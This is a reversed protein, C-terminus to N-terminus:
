NWQRGESKPGPWEGCRSTVKSRASGVSTICRRASFDYVTDSLIVPLAVSSRVSLPRPYPRDGIELTSLELTRWNPYAPWHDSGSVERSIAKAAPKKAHCPECAAQTKEDTGAGGLGLGVIHDVITRGASV